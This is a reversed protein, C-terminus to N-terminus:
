HGKLTCKSPPIWVIVNTDKINAALDVLAYSPQMEGRIRVGKLRAEQDQLRAAKEAVPLKRVESVADATVRSKLGWGTDQPPLRVAFM